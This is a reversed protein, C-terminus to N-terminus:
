PAAPADCDDCQKYNHELAWTMTVSAANRMGGCTKESHYYKGELTCYVYTNDPDVKTGTNGGNNNNGTQEQGDEEYPADGDGDLCTPCPSQGRLEATDVTVLKAGQMGTCHPDSHYFEGADTAYVSGICEPCPKQGRASATEESVKKANQMGTCNQVRHYYSGGDTAYYYLGTDNDDEGPQPTATPKPTPTANLICHPCATKGSKEAAQITMHEAGQMGQCNRDKHYWKGDATGYVSGICTACPTQGRAEAQAETVKSAGTMGRCNSKNHYNEGAATAWYYTVGSTEAGEICDPCASQGRSNIMALTVITAGQMGSCNPNSHYYKGTPTSYYTGSTGICKPCATQGREAIEATTVATAGQMGRCNPDSHFNEGNPTSYYQTKCQTVTTQTQTTTGTNGTNVHVINDEPKAEAKGGACVPCATKGRSLATAETIRTAGTMNQCNQDTHYWTGNTTAWYKANASTGGLCTPCPALGNNEAASASGQIANRMGGCNSTKHYYQGGNPNYWYIGDTNGTNANGTNGTTGTNGTSAGSMCTECPTKGATIANEVTTLYANQMGRCSSNSHYNSGGDTMYVSGICTECPTQNRALAESLSVVQASTMGRCNPQIHYNSGNPTSYYMGEPIPTATPGTTAEVAMCKPCPTQDRNQAVALLVRNAGSMNQCTSDSHYYEGGEKSWVYTPENTASQNSGVTGANDTPAPTATNDPIASPTPSPSPTPTVTASATPVGTEIPPPLTNDSGKNLGSFLWILLVVFWILSAASVASRTVIEFRNHKWLLWIGLPPLLILAAWMLCPADLIGGMPSDDYDDDEPAYYEGNEDDYEPEDYDEPAYKGSRAYEEEYKSARNMEEEQRRAMAEAWPFPYRRIEGTETDKTAIGRESLNVLMKGLKFTKGKGSAM